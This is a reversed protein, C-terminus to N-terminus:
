SLYLSGSVCASPSAPETGPAWRPVRDRSELIVGEALPLCWVVSGGLSGWKLYESQPGLHTQLAFTLQGLSIQGFDWTQLCFLTKTDVHLLQYRPHLIPFETYPKSKLLLHELLPRSPPAPAESTARTHASSSSSAPFVPLCTRTAASTPDQHPPKSLATSAQQKQVPAAETDRCTWLDPAPGAPDAM